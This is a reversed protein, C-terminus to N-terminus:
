YLQAARSRARSRANGRALGPGLSAPDGSPASVSPSSTYRSCYWKGIGSGLVLNALKQSFLNAVKPWYWTRKNLELSSKALYIHTDQNRSNVQLVCM